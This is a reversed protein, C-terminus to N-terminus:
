LSLRNRVGNTRDAHSLNSVVSPTLLKTAQLRILHLPHLLKLGLVSPQATGNRIQGQVLHDESLGGLSVELGRADGLM